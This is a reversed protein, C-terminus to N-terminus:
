KTLGHGKEQLRDVGCVQWRCEVSTSIGHLIMMVPALPLDRTRALLYVAM